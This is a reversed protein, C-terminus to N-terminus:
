MLRFMFLINNVNYRYKKWCIVYENKQHTKIVGICVQGQFINWWWNQIFMFWLIIKIYQFASATNVAPYCLHWLLILAECRAAWSWNITLRGGNPCFAHLICFRQHATPINLITLLTPRTMKDNILFHQRHLTILQCSCSLYRQGGDNVSRVRTAFLWLPLVSLVATM